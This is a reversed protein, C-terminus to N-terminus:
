KLSDKGPRSVLLMSKPTERSLPGGQAILNAEGSRLIRWARLTTKSAMVGYTLIGRMSPISRERTLSRHLLKFSTTSELSHIALSLSLLCVASGQVQPSKMATSIWFFLHHGQMTREGLMISARQCLSWAPLNLYYNMQHCSEQLNRKFCLKPEYWMGAHRPPYSHVRGCSQRVHLWLSRTWNVPSTHCLLFVPLLRSCHSKIRAPVCECHLKSCAEPSWRQGWYWLCRKAWLNRCTM